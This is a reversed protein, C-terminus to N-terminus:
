RIENIMKILEKAEQSSTGSETKKSEGTLEYFRSTEILSETRLRMDGISESGSPMMQKSSYNPTM